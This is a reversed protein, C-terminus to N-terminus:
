KASQSAIVSTVLDVGQSYLMRSKKQKKAESWVRFEPANGSPRFLIWSDKDILVKLGDLDETKKGRYKRKVERLIKENFERPCDVKDRTLYFKPLEAALQSLTKGTKKIINLMKITASGADRGYIVEASIVGGNAEFGIQSGVEKMKEAVYTAGVKTRFVKKGTYNVVTSTNIPTVVSNGGSYKTLISCSVDGTLYQGKETFFVVRDGDPDYSVGLNANNKLVLDQVEKFPNGAETDRVKIEKKPTCYKEITKVGLRKLVPPVMECQTANSCDVVAKFNKFNGDAINFLLSRYKKGAKNEKKVKLRRSQYKKTKKMQRYISEIQIEHKKQVEEDYVYFKIGNMDLRIHSGTIEIGAFNESIKVFYTLCPSPTIGQDVVQGGLSVVGQMLAKKMRLSGERPDMGFCVPGKKGLFMFFARAIDFCFEDTFDKETYGRIGNTGFLKKRKM